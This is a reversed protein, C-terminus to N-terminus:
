AIVYFQLNLTNYRTAATCYQINYLIPIYKYIISANSDWHASKKYLYWYIMRKEPHM